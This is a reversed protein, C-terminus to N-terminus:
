APKKDYPVDGVELIHEVHPRDIVAGVVAHFSADVNRREDEQKVARYFLLKLRCAEVQGGGFRQDRKPGCM